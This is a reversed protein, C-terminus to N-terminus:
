AKQCIEILVGRMGEPKLFAIPVGYRDVLIGAAAPGVIRAGNFVVSGLAIANMLDDKGVMEVTFSQRTPMDLTSAFGYLTALVAVHWYQVHGLWALASLAFAQLMLASQTAVLVRRKPLRDAIAGALFSFCLVPGFQLAGILGLRFPSNTLELVLWSQGVSQM